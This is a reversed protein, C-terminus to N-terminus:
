NRLSTKNRDIWERIKDLSNLDSIGSVDSVTKIYQVNDQETGSFKISINIGM